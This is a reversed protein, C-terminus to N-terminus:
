KKVGRHFETLRKIWKYFDEQTLDKKAYNCTKCCTVCNNYVYDKTNDVRDVGNYVYAGNTRKGKEIQSPPIGCYHCNGSTLKKFEEKNLEFSRSRRSAGRKYKSFLINFSARGKKFAVDKRNKKFRESALESALCGCSKTAGRTLNSTGVSKNVGCECLCNWNVYSRGSKSYTNEARSVVTLRGFVQGTLDNAKM